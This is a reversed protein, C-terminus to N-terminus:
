PLCPRPRALALDAGVAHKVRGLHKGLVVLIVHRGLGRGRDVLRMVRPSPCPRWSGSAIVRLVYRHDGFESMERQNQRQQERRQQARQREDARMAADRRPDRERPRERRSLEQEDREGEAAERVREHAVVERHDVDRGVGVRLERELVPDGRGPARVLARHQQPHQHEAAPGDGDGQPAAVQGVLHDRAHEADHAQHREPEQQEQQERGVREVPQKRRGGSPRSRFGSSCSGPM